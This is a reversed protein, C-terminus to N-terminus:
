AVIYKREKFTKSSMDQWRGGGNNLFIRVCMDKSDHVENAVQFIPRNKQQYGVTRNTSDGLCLGYRNRLIDAGEKAVTKRRGRHYLYLIESACEDSYCLTRM